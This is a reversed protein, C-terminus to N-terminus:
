IHILSLEILGPLPSTNEDKNYVVNNGSLLGHATITIRDTTANIYNTSGRFSVVERETDITHQYIQNSITELEPRLSEADVVDFRDSVSANNLDTIINAAVADYFIKEADQFVDNVGSTVLITVDGTSNPSAVPGTFNVSQITGLTGSSAGQVFRGTVLTSASGTHNNFTIKFINDGRYKDGPVAPIQSIEPEYYLRQKDDFM